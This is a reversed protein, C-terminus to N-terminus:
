SLKVERVKYDGAHRDDLEALKSPNWNNIRSFYGVIRTVSYTDTSACHRCKEEIGRATKRCSNCFTFEPSITVQAAQTKEFTKKILNMISETSPKQEGVFAHIIAGSEILTHFKSQKQIRTLLDLDADARFHISNTYYYQDNEIDGKIVNAAEPYQRMDVKPLRRCASEAPSEELTFKLNYKKGYEKTKYNMFSIVKLGQKFIEESEHLEKGAIHQMAENLGILGIIYTSTELDIYPRGDKAPKYVEWMPKGPSDMLQAIFKKKQIHAKVAVDMAKEIEKLMGEFNGKGARYAAQPLNITVNQFGCFRMSEPHEIMYMDDIKQRLRCCQSLVAEDGRDFVFYTSGNESAILCAYELLERQRPDTFSENSIHLDCKPFAFVRGESDGDRWVDLMAKAFRIATDEYDGYTRGTYEGKPGVAPINKLYNPVGTHVNFDIFLSQSGRSFANQSASFILYQAEQKLEKDGMDELYPAYLINLYGIGLAGAYYAQLSAMFTNLHGTLTRAYKAPGSSTFLNGLELGYKKIYELSHSGCYARPYGLDHIHVMGRLHANAVDETFVKQLMYQKLITEAIALNVAEPNNSAINSNECSKSFLLQDLDYTPMGIISQSHLTQELGREFLENDVLERILSTSIQTIGSNFIKKEVSSAVEMAIDEAIGSEKQLALAIRGKDWNLIEDKTLPTVLLSLDTSNNKGKVRKRVKLSKRIKRRKERYLIYAKATKAHGTEILVKEVIDQIQEIDPTKNKYQKKLFLVVANALEDALLKDEGGVASAAKFIADSIKKKDFAVVRGDRKRIQELEQGEMSNLQEKALM